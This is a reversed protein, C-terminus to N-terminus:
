YLRFDRGTEAYYKEYGGVTRCLPLAFFKEKETRPASAIVAFSGGVAESVLPRMKADSDAGATPRQALAHPMETRSNVIARVVTVAGVVALAGVLIAGQVLFGAADARSPQTGAIAICAALPLALITRKMCVLM